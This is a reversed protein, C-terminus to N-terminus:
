NAWLWEGQKRIQLEHTEMVFSENKEEVWAAEVLGKAADKVRLHLVHKDPTMWTGEWDEPKLEAPTDGVIKKSVVSACSALSGLAVVSLLLIPLRIKMRSSFVCCAM